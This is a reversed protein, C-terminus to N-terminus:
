HKEKNGRGNGAPNKTSPVAAPRRDPDAPIALTRVYGGPTLVKIRYETKRGFERRDASLVRGGTDHQVKEVAQDLSLRHEQQAWLPTAVAMLLPAALLHSLILTKPTM